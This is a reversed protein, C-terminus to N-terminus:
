KKKDEINGKFPNEYHVNKLRSTIWEVLYQCHVPNTENQGFNCKTVNPCLFCPCNGMTEWTVANGNKSEVCNTKFTYEEIYQILEKRIGEVLDSKIQVKQKTQLRKISNVILKEDIKLFDIIKDKYVEHREKVLALVDKDIESSNRKKNIHSKSASSPKTTRRSSSTEDPDMDTAQKCKHRTLDLFFQECYPCQTKKKAM